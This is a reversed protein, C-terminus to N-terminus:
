QNNHGQNNQQRRRRGGLPWCWLYMIRIAFLTVAISLLPHLAPLVQAPWYRGAALGAVLLTVAARRWNGFAVRRLWRAINYVSAWLAEGTRDLLWL